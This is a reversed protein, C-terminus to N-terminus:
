LPGDPMMAMSMEVFLELIGNEDLGTLDKGCGEELWRIAEKPDDFFEDALGEIIQDNVANSM